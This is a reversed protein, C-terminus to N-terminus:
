ASPGRGAALRAIQAWMGRCDATDKIFRLVTHGFFASLSSIAVLSNGFEGVIGGVAMGTIAYRPTLFAGLCLGGASCALTLFSVGYLKNISTLAHTSVRGLQNAALMALFILMLARSFSLGRGIWFKFLLPGCFFLFSSVLIFLAWSFQTVIRVLSYARDRDDHGVANAIEVEMPLVMMLLLQDMLRMTTAYVAYVAVASGGLMAGLIVRPGQVLLGQTSLNQTLFGVMPKAQATIWRRDFSLLNLSVWHARRAALISVITLDGGAVATMIAAVDAQRAHGLGVTVGVCVLEILKAVGYIYYALGYSGAAYLSAGVLGRVTQLWLQIGFLAIVLRVSKPPIANLHLFASIPVFCSITVFLFIVPLVIYLALNLSMQFSRAAREFDRAGAAMVMENASTTVLGFNSYGMYSSLATLAIWQGYGDLGWARVLIPVLALTTLAQVGRSFAQGSVGFGLRSFLPRQM